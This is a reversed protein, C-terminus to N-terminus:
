SFEDCPQDICSASAWWRAVEFRDKMNLKRCIKQCHNDVTRPELSLLRGIEKSRLNLLLLDLIQKERGTLCDGGSGM